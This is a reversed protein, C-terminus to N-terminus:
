QVKWKQGAKQMLEMRERRTRFLSVLALRFFVSVFLCLVPMCCVPVEGECLCMRLANM